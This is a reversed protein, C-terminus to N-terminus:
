KLIYKIMFEKCNIITESFDQFFIKFVKEVIFIIM